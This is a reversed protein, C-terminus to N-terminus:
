PVSAPQQPAAVTTNTTTTPLPVPLASLMATMASRAIGLTAIAEEMTLAVEPHVLPNRHLSTMQEIAAIIKENGCKIQRLKKTYIGFSRVKPPPHSGAVEAYYRRLVSETARFVHFGCATPVEFALCKAAQQADFLAEPVKASLDKPFLTEGANLLSFTDFGGKRNVFYSSLSQLEALLVAKYQEFGRKIELMEYRNVADDMSKQTQRNIFTLLEEAVPASARLYPGYLDSHVNILVQEARFLSFFIDGLKTDEQPLNALPELEVGLRYLYPLSIPTM